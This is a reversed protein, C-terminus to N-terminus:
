AGRMRRPILLLRLRGDDPRPSSSLSTLSDIRADIAIRLGVGRGRERSDQWLASPLAFQRVHREVNSFECRHSQAM